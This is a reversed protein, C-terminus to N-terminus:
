STLIEVENNLINEGRSDPSSVQASNPSADMTKSDRVYRVLLRAESRYTMPRTLFLYAAAGIGLLTFFFILWKHRFLAYLVDDLTMGAPSETRPRTDQM